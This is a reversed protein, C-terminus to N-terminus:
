LLIHTDCANGFVMKLFSDSTLQKRRESVVEKNTHTNENNAYRADRKAYFSNAEFFIFYEMVLTDSLM